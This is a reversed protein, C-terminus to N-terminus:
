TAANKLVSERVALERVMETVSSHTAQCGQVARSDSDPGQPHGRAGAALGQARRDAVDVGQVDRHAREARQHVAFLLFLLVRTLLTLWHLVVPSRALSISDLPTQTLALSLSLYAPDGGKCRERM